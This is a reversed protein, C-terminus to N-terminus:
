HVNTSSSWEDWASFGWPSNLDWCISGWEGYAPDCWSKRVNGPKGEQELWSNLRSKPHQAICSYHSRAWTPKFDVDICSTIHAGVPKQSHSVTNVWTLRLRVRGRATGWGGWLLSSNELTVWINRRTNYYTEGGELEPSFPPWTSAWMKGIKVDQLQSPHREPGSHFIIGGKVRLGSVTSRKPKVCLM